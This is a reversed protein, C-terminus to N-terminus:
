NKWNAGVLAKYDYGEGKAPANAKVYEIQEPKM